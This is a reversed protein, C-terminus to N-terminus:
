HLYLALWKEGAHRQNNEEEAGGNLSCHCLQLHFRGSQFHCLKVNAQLFLIQQTALPQSGICRGHCGRQATFDMHSYLCSRVEAPYLKSPSPM